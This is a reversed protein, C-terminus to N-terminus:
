STASPPSGVTADKAALLGLSALLSVVPVEMACWQAPIVGGHCFAEFLVILAAISTTVKSGVMRSLM